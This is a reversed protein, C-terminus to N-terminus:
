RKSVAHIRKVRGLAMTYICTKDDSVIEYSHVLECEMSFAAEAVFPPKITSHTLETEHQSSPVPAWALFWSPYTAFALSVLFSGSIISSRGTDPFLWLTNAELTKPSSM